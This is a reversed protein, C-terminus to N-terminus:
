RHQKTNINIKQSTKIQHQTLMNNQNSSDSESSVLDNIESVQSLNQKGVRFSARVIEVAHQQTLRKSFTEM